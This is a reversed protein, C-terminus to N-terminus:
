AQAARGKAARVVIFVLFWLGLTLNRPDFITWSIFTEGIIGVMVLFFMLWYEEEVPSNTRFYKLLTRTTAAIFLGAFLIVGLLGYRFVIPVWTIDASWEILYPVKSHTLVTAMGLGTVLNDKSVIDFTRWLFNLRKGFNDTEGLTTSEFRQTFYQLEIPFYRSIAWYAVIIVMSVFVLRFIQGTLNRKVARLVFGALIIAVFMIFMSRTYSFFSSLLTLALLGFISMNWKQRSFVYAMTLFYFRPMWWFARTISTGRINVELYSVGQYVPLHLGQNLIYLTAAIANVLIITYLFNDIEKKDANGVIGRLLLYGVFMCGLQAGTLLVGSFDYSDYLNIVFNISWLGFLAIIIGEEPMVPAPGFLDQFKLRYIKKANLVIVVILWIVFLWILILIPRTLRNPMWFIKLRDFFLSSEMVM